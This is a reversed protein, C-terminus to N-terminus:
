EQKQRKRVKVEQDRGTYTKALGLEHDVLDARWLCFSRLVGVFRVRGTWM